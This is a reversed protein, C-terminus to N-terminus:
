VGPGAGVWRGEWVTSARGSLEVRGPGGDPGPRRAVGLLGGRESSQRATLEKKGLKPSWLEALACHLAGTVPDEAVRLRPAFFRSEIDVGDRDSEATIAVGRVHFAALRGFDPSARRVTEASKLVVLWDYTARFGGAVEGAGGPLGLMALLDAPPEAERVPDAPFDMAVAGDPTRECTLEGSFKTQFRIPRGFGAAGLEWLRHASALTAHGCLEVEAGPTFWRLGFLGPEMPWVFATESLNMELALSQMWADDTPEGLCVCVAAPNGSFPGDVFADVGALSSPM